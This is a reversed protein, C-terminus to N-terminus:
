EIIKGGFGELLPQLADDAASYEPKAVGPMVVAEIRLATGLVQSLTRELILRIKPEAIRELHFDYAVGIRLTEGAVQVPRMVRLLSFLSYNQTKVQALLTPWQQMVQELNV